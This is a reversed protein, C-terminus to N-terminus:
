LFICSFYESIFWRKPDVEWLLSFLFLFLHSRILSWLKQVALCFSLRWFLLVYKCTFCYLILRWFVCVAWAAWYWFFLGILLFPYLGLCVNRWLFCVSPWSACSFISVVDSILSICILIIILYWITAILIAMIFFFYVLLLHQYPHPSFPVRKCQQHSHLNISLQM